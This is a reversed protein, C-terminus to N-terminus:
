KVFLKKTVTQGNKLQVTVLYSGSKTGSPLMFNYDSLDNDFTKTMLKQGSVTLLKLNSISTNSTMRVM